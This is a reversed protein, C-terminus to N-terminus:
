VAVGQPMAADIRNRAIDAYQPDIECGIYNFGNTVCAVGTSGSGNFPDLITGGPPAILKICWAALEPPYAAPHGIFNSTDAWCVDTQRAIGKRMPSTANSIWGSQHTKMFPKPHAIRDSVGGNAKADCWGQREKGFWLLREWSRRPRKPHGIPASSKKHWILEDWEFWGADRLALRTHHVYDSIQGDKVHERINIIVSGQPVLVRRVEHMWRVTWEPYESEPVGGYQAARQMAYPPSTVVAHVSEADMGGMVDVCDGQIVEYAM